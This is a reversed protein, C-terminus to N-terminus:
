RLVDVDDNGIDQIVAIPFDSITAPKATTPTQRGSTLEKVRESIYLDLMNLTIRGTHHIDARGRLGEVVARTFAGNSWEAAEQSSQRGTSAAFVVVGNEASSLESIFPALDGLGRTQGAGFVKGSHCTDLFLLVKGPISALATRVDTEPLMTRMMAVPDADQPLFYYLGTAPDTIGHGALFLVALDRATTQERLWQLGDLIKGKTADADVLVRTEVARYLTKQQARFVAALDQADKAAFRLRLDARQYTSVGVALLYLKPQTAPTGASEPRPGTWRLRLQVPASNGQAGEAILTLTVDQPPVPVALLLEQEAGDAAPELPVIRGGRSQAALRGDILARLGRLPEGAPRRVVARVLIEPTSVAAGDRPTDVRLELGRSPPVAQAPITGAPSPPPSSPAPAAAPSPVARPAGVDARAPRRPRAEVAGAAALLVLLWHWTRLAAAIRFVARGPAGRDRPKSM